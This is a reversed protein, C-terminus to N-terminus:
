RRPGRQTPVARLPPQRRGAREGALREAPDGPSSAADADQQEAVAAMGASLGRGALERVRRLDAASLGSQHQAAMLSATRGDPDCSVVLVEGQDLQLRIWEGDGERVPMDVWATATEFVPDEVAMADGVTAQIRARFPAFAEVGAAAAAREVSTEDTM